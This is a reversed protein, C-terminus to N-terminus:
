RSDDDARIHQILGSILFCHLFRDIIDAYLFHISSKGSVSISGEFDALLPQSRKWDLLYAAVIDMNTNLRTSLRSGM